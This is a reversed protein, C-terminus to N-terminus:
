EESNEPPPPLASPPMTPPLSKKEQRGMQDWYAAAEEPSIPNPPPRIDATEFYNETEVYPISPFYAVLPLDPSDVKAIHLENMADVFAKKNCLESERIFCIPIEHVDRILVGLCRLTPSVDLGVCLMDHNEFASQVPSKSKMIVRTPPQAYDSQM